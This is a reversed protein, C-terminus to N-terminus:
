FSLLLIFLIMGIERAGISGHKQKHTGTLKMIEGGPGTRGHQIRTVAAELIKEQTTTADHTQAIMTVRGEHMVVVRDSMGIVEPMESSVM